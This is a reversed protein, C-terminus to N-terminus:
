NKTTDMKISFKINNGDKNDPFYFKEKGSYKGNEWYFAYLLDDEKLDVKSFKDILQKKLILPERYFLIEYVSSNFNIKKSRRQVYKHIKIDNKITNSYKKVFYYESTAIFVKNGNIISDKIVEANVYRIQLRNSPQCSIFFLCSLFVFKTNFYGLRYNQFCGKKLTKM